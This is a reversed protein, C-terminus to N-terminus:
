ILSYRYEFLSLNSTLCGFIELEALGLYGDRGRWRSIMSINVFNTQIGGQLQITIWDDRNGLTDNVKSGDSFEIFIDKFRYTEETTQLIKLKYLDYEDNLVFNIWPHQDRTQTHWYEAVGDGNHAKKCM